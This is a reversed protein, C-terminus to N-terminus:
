IGPSPYNWQYIPSNRSNWCGWTMQQGLFGLSCMWSSPQTNVCGSFQLSQVCKGNLYYAADQTPATVQVHCGNITGIVKNFADWRALCGVFGLLPLDEESPILGITHLWAKAWPPPHGQWASDWRHRSSLCISFSISPSTVPECNVCPRTGTFTLWNRYLRKDYKQM